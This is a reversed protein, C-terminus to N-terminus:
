SREEICKACDTVFHDVPDHYHVAKSTRRVIHEADWETTLVKFDCRDCTYHFFSIDGVRNASLTGKPVVVQFTQGIGVIGKECNPCDFSPYDHDEEELEFLTLTTISM